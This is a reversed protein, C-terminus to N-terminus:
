GAFVITPPQSRRLGTGKTIQTGGRGRRPVIVRWLGRQVLIGYQGYTEQQPDETKPAGRRFALGERMKIKEGEGWCCQAEKRWLGV